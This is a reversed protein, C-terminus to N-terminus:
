TELTTQVCFGIGKEIIKGHQIVAKTDVNKMTSLQHAVAVTTRNVMFRNLAEQVKRESETDLVSTAEDLLLINPDKLIARAIAIIQKQGGSLLAGHEGVM